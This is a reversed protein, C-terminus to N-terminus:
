LDDWPTGTPRSLLASRLAGLYIAGTAAPWTHRRCIRVLLDDLPEDLGALEDADRVVKESGLEFAESLIARVQPGFRHAPLQGSPAREVPLRPLVAPTHRLRQATTALLAQARGICLQSRALQEHSREALQTLPESPSM